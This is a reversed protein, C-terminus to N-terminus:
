PRLLVDRVRWEFVGHGPVAFSVHLTGTRGISPDHGPDDAQFPLRQVFGAWPTRGSVSNAWAAEATSIACTWRGLSRRHCSRGDWLEVELTGAVAVPLGRCDLPLVRVVLGSPEAGAEWHGLHADAWISAVRRSGLWLEEAAIGSPWPARLQSPSATADGGAPKALAADPVSRIQLAKARFAAGDFDESGVVGHAIRDWEVPRLIEANGASLRLWLQEASTRRDVEATVQEGGKLEVVVKQGARVAAPCLAFALAGSLFGQV